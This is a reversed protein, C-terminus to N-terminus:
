VLINRQRLEEILRDSLADADADITMLHIEPAEPAEYPSTIGTFNPIAGARAKAYLGKPDRRM